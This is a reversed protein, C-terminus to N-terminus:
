KKNKFKMGVYTGTFAGLLAAILHTHDTTYNIIAVSATFTVVTAWFSAVVPRDNQVARLFHTYIIDTVFVALFTFFYLLM